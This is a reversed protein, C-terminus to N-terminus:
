TQCLHEEIPQKLTYGTMDLEEVYMGNGQKTIVYRKGAEIFGTMVLAVSQGANSLKFAKSIKYDELEDKYVAMNNEQALLNM